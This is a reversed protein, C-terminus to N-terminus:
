RDPAETETPNTLMDRHTSDNDDILPADISVHKGAIKMREVVKEESLEMTEAIEWATPMRSLQQELTSIEKNMKNLSGIQNLPIRVM